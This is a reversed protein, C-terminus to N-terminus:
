AFAGAHEDVWQPFTRPPVGTVDQVTPLVESEDLAGDVYFTVFADVYEEPTTALM